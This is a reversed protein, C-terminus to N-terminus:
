WQGSVESDVAIFDDDCECTRALFDKDSAAERMQVEYKARKIQKLYDNLAARIGFNVSPIVQEKALLKLEDIYDAPLSATYRVTQNNNTMM